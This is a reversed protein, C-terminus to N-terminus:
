LVIESIYVYDVFFYSNICRNKLVLSHMSEQKGIGDKENELAIPIVEDIQM